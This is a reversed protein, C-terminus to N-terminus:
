SASIRYEFERNEKQHRPLAPLPRQPSYLEGPQFLVSEDLDSVFNKGVFGMAVRFEGRLIEMLQEVGQRGGVSLAYAAPRGILGARAGLAIAAVLDSGRRVGGDIYLECRGRVAQAIAPLVQITAPQGDFQRGGHNSVIIGDAGEAVAREADEPAMVGKVVLKGKWSDRLRAFRGWDIAPNQNRYMFEFMSKMPIFQGNDTYNGWTIKPAKLM